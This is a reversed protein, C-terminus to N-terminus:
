NVIDRLNQKTKKTVTGKAKKDTVSFRLWTDLFPEANRVANYFVCDM